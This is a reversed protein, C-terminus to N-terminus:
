LIEKSEDGNAELSPFSVMKERLGAELLDDKEVDTTHKWVCKKARNLTLIIRKRRGNDERMCKRTCEFTWDTANLLGVFIALIIRLQYWTVVKLVRYQSM